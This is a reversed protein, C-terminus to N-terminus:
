RTISTSSSLSWCPPLFVFYLIFEFSPWFRTYLGPLAPGPVTLGPISGLSPCEARGANAAGYKLCHSPPFVISEGEAPLRLIVVNLFNGTVAGFIFSSISLLGPMSINAISINMTQRPELNLGPM